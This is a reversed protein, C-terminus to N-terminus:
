EPVARVGESGKEGVGSRPQALPIFLTNKEGRRTSLSALVTPLPAPPSFMMSM